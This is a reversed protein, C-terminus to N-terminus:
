RDPGAVQEPVGESGHRAAGRQDEASVSRRRLLDGAHERPERRGGLGIVAAGDRGGVVGTEMRHGKFGRPEKHISRTAEAATRRKSCRSM